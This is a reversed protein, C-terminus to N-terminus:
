CVDKSKNEKEEVDMADEAKVTAGNTMPRFSLTKKDFGQYIIIILILM